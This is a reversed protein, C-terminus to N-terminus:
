WLLDVNVLAKDKGSSELIKTSLHHRGSRICLLSIPISDTNTHQLPGKTHGGDSIASISAEMQYMTVLQYM